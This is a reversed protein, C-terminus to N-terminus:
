RKVVKHYSEKEDNILKLIYISPSLSNINLQYFHGGFKTELIKRGILDFVQVQTIGDNATEIRILDTAPNPYCKVRTTEAEQISVPIGSRGEFYAFGGAYNGVILDPYNDNNLEGVAVGVRIGEQIPLHRTGIQEPLGTTQLSFSGYLNNDINNYFFLKGQENGCILM